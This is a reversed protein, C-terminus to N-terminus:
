STIRARKKFFDSIFGKIEQPPTTKLLYGAPKLPLLQQLREKDVTGTLFIVPIDVFAEEARIMELVQKGDCIPMEYDLLVLDPKDLTICRIAAVGSQAQTIEYDKDFLEKMFQLVVASDDVVLIKKKGAKEKENERLYKQIEDMVNAAKLPMGPTDELMHPALMCYAFYGKGTDFLLSSQPNHREFVREFQKYPLLNEEVIEVQGDTSFHSMIREVFQRSIYRAANMMMVNVKEADSDVLNGVTSVLLKEDFVLLFEWREGKDSGYVLRYYIGNGFKEGSYSESIVRAELQFLDHLHQIITKKMAAQEEEPLLETWRSSVGGTIARDEIMTHGILWGACVGLFHAVAEPSYFSEELEKEIEPLTKKRFIDHLRRHTEYGEYGISAMYVEEEAFHKMAHGKFFKIGEQYAWRSKEDNGGYAFLKNMINFLKKHERDIVDVGISYREHWVFKQNDM